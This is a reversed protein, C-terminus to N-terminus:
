VTCTFIGDYTPVANATPAFRAFDALLPKPSM